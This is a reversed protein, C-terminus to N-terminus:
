PKGQYVQTKLTDRSWPKCWLKARIVPRLQLLLEDRHVSQYLSKLLLLIQKRVMKAKGVERRGDCDDESMAVLITTVRLPFDVAATIAFTGGSIRKLM